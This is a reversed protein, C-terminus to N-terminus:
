AAIAPGSRSHTVRPGFLGVLDLSDVAAVFCLSFGFRQRHGTDRDAEERSDRVYAVLRPNGAEICSLARGWRRRELLPRLRRTKAIEGAQRPRLLIAVITQPSQGMSKWRM